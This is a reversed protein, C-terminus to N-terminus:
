RPAAGTVPVVVLSKLNRVWRAPKADEPDIIQFTGTATLPQGARTIAVIIQSKHLGPQLEAGSFVVFYGDTGTGLMYSDLISRQTNEALAVGAKALVTAVLPGSYTEKQKTHANFVEVTVQPMAELDARQLTLAPQAGFSIELAASPSSAKETHGAEDGMPSHSATDVPAQAATIGTPLLGSGLFLATRLLLKATPM